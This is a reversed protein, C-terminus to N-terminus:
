RALVLTTYSHKKFYPLRGLLYDFRSFFALQTRGSLTESLGLKEDYPIPDGSEDKSEIQDVLSTTLVGVGWYRIFEMGNEALIEKLEKHTFTKFVIPKHNAAKDEESWEDTALGWEHVHGLYKEVAKARRYKEEESKLLFRWKNDCDFLFYGGKKLVRSIESFAVHYKAPIHSLVLDISCIFDFSDKKFPIEVGDAVFFHMRDKDPHEIQKKAAENILHHSPDMGYVFNAGEELMLIAYDGTGCGYDLANKGIYLKKLKRFVSQYIHQYTTLFICDFTADYTKADAKYQLYSREASIFHNIDILEKRILEILNKSGIEMVAKTQAKIGKKLLAKHDDNEWFKGLLEIFAKMLKSDEVKYLNPHMRMVDLCLESLVERLKEFDENKIESWIYTPDKKIISKIRNWIDNEKEELYFLLKSYEEDTSMLLDLFYSIYLNKYSRLEGSKRLRM